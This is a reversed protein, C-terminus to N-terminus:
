LVTPCRTRPNRYLEGKSKQCAELILMILSKQCLETSAQRCHWGPLFIGGPLFIEVPSYCDREM